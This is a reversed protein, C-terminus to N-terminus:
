RVTPVFPAVALIEGSRIKSLLTLERLAIKAEVPLSKLLAIDPNQTSLMRAATMNFKEIISEWLGKPQPYVVWETKEEPEIGAKDKAIGLAVNLSGLTDVLGIEYARKGTWVRGQAVENIEEYSKDRASSVKTIFFDYFDEGSEKFKRWETPTLARKDTLMDAHQNTKVTSWDIGLKDYTGSLNFITSVVGISGTFTMPQAVIADANMAIWYGGSAAVDGMSIIVPKAERVKEIAAWIEDSALGSGGPSDVRLVVAEIDKDYIAERLMGSISQAGLIRGNMADHGSYGPMITGIAYILAIKRGGTVGVEYPEMNAYQGVNVLNFKKSTQRGYVKERIVDLVESEYKLGDVLENELIKESSYIGDAMLALLANETIERQECVASVFEQQIDGLLMETEKRHAATMSERKYMDGASKYKGVNHVQPQLGVKTFLRKVFPIEAAFGNFEARAQPQLYIEDASLAIYYSKEDCYDVYAVAFKGSKKFLEIEEKIEKAMAWGLGPYFVRLFLGHIRDDRQALTLAQRIDHMQLASGEFERAFADGPYQETVQGALTLNLVSNNRVIPQNEFLARLGLVFMLSMFAFFSFIFVFFIVWGRKVAM